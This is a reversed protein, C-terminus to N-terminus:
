NDTAPTIRRVRKVSTSEAGSMTPANKAAPVTEDSAPSSHSDDTLRRRRVSPGSDAAGTSTPGASPRSQSSRAQQTTSAVGDSALSRKRTRTRPGEGSEAVADAPTSKAGNRRDSPGRGGSGGQGARKGGPANGQLDASRASRQKRQPPSDNSKKRDRPQRVARSGSQKQDRQGAQGKRSRSRGRGGGEGERRPRPATPRVRVRVRADIKRLGFWGRGNSQLVDVEADSLDVGLRDLALEQAEEVSAGTVEVWEM